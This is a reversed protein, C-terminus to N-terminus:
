FVNIHYQDTMREGEYSCWLKHTKQLSLHDSLTAGRTVGSLELLNIRKSGLDTNIVEQTICECHGYLRIFYSKNSCKTAVPVPLVDPLLTCLSLM